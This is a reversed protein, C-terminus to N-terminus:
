RLRTYRGAASEVYGSLELDVLLGTLDAADLGTARVLTDLDVPEFGMADLVRGPKGDPAANEAAADSGAEEAKYSLMGGLQEAVDQVTEVLTAGERIL